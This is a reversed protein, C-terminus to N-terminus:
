AGRAKRQARAISSKLALRAYYIKRAEAARKARERPSLTRDPDVQDEFRRLFAETGARTRARRDPTNEPLWSIRAAIRKQQRDQAPTLHNPIGKPM